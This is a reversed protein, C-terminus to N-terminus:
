FFGTFFGILSVCKANRVLKCLFPSFEASSSEFNNRMFHFLFYSTLRLSRPVNSVEDFHRGSEAGKKKSKMENLTFYSLSNSVKLNVFRKSFVILSSIM